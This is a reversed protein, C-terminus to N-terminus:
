LEDAAHQTSSASAGIQYVRASTGVFRRTAFRLWMRPVDVTEAPDGLMSPADEMLTILLSGKPLLTSAHRLFADLTVDESTNQVPILVASVDAWDEASSSDASSKRFELERGEVVSPGFVEGMTQLATQLNGAVSDPPWATSVPKRAGGFDVCRVRRPGGPFLLMFAAARCDGVVAVVRGRSAEEGGTALHQQLRNSSMVAAIGLPKLETVARGREGGGWEALADLDEALCEFPSSAAGQLGTKLLDFLSGLSVDKAEPVAGGGAAKNGASARALTAWFRMNSGGPPKKADRQLFKISAFEKAALVGDAQELSVQLERWTPGQKARAARAVAAEDHGFHRLLASRLMASVDTTQSFVESTSDALPAVLYLGVSPSTAFRARPGQPIDSLDKTVVGLLGRQCGPWTSGAVVTTGVPLAMTARTALTWAQSSPWSHTMAVFVSVNPWDVATRVPDETSLLTLTEPKKEIGTSATWGPLGTLGVPCTHDAGGQKGCALLSSRASEASAHRTQLAEVGVAGGLATLLWAQVVLKGQGSQVEALVDTEGLPPSIFDIVGQLSAATWHGSNLGVYKSKQEDGTVKAPVRQWLDASVCDLCSMEDGRLRALIFHTLEETSAPPLEEAAAVDLNLARTRYELGFEFQLYTGSAKKGDARAAALRAHRQWFSASSLERADLSALLRQLADTGLKSDNSDALANVLAAASVASLADGSAARLTAQWTIGTQMRLLLNQAVFAPPAVMYALLEFKKTWTMPLAIYGMHTLGPHCPEFPKLTLIVTGPALYYFRQTLKQM